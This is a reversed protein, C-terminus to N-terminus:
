WDRRWHWIRRRVDTPYRSCRRIILPHTPLQLGLLWRGLADDLCTAENSPDHGQSPPAPEGQLCSGIGHDITTATPLTVPHSGPVAALILRPSPQAAGSKPQLAGPDPGRVRPADARVCSDRTLHKGGIDHSLRANWWDRSRRGNRIFRWQWGPRHSRWHRHGSEFGFTKATDAWLVDNM